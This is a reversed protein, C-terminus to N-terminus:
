PAVPISAFLFSTLLDGKRAAPESSPAGIASVRLRADDMGRAAAWRSLAQATEGFHEACADATM